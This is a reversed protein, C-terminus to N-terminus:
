VYGRCRCAERFSGYIEELKPVADQCPIYTQDVTTMSQIAVSIKGSYFSDAAAIVAAGFAANPFRCRVIVRNMVNSRLQSFIASRAAGGTSFVVDGLEIGCEALKEYGWREVFAISQLQAAYWEGGRPVTGEWFSDATPNTFPFREGKSRLLFCVGPTPFYPAAARDIEEPSAAFEDTRLSGPGTNSAAGPAWFDAPHRHCYMGASLRPKDRTLAKWVVTTGMTTNMDKAFFAGSAILGAMGDTAGALVPTGSSLGTEESARATVRGVLQGPCVVHPLRESSIEALSVFDGWKGAEIDYGLKLANSYDSSGFDGTLKGTLWDAPHLLYRTREWVAQEM